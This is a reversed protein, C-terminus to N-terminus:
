LGQKTMFRQLAQSGVDSRAAVLVSGLALQKM